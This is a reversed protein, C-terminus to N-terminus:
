KIAEGNAEVPWYINQYLNSNEATGDPSCLQMEQYSFPSLYHAQYFTYGDYLINNTKQIQYPRVYKSLTKASMTANSEGDAIILSVGKDNVFSPNQYIQDWFNVGEIQYNKVQDLSAWRILDDNRLGEGAFESRRERRISYLTADVPHGASFAAWDYSPRNVDAEKSMDTAAITTSIPATIGARARLATWYGTATADLSGTRLYSAEIYNLMAEEVRIIIQGDVDSFTQGLQMAPDYNYFKRQRYGTVDRSAQDTAFLTAANFLIKTLPTAGAPLKDNALDISKQDIGLVDSEGFMFLQLREDRDTKVLDVTTDGHYGSGSAYIPLGNKMLFSEVLGRTWGTAAGGRLKNSTLHALSPTLNSNFQRWLLVEPYKSLDPSAFMDYYANWGNYQGIASPNMVHNNQTKLPVADCVKKAADIAQDLFFNVENDQNITFNKNWEKNKGPWNADGPVRGTGRHYKEFTAEYLAMRSKMALAANKNIRVKSAVNVQLKDIAKDMDSLIQRAVLNRPQRKSAEVLDNDINLEKLVIPFDGYDQLKSYYLMARIFYAEGMYQNIQEPTGTVKGAAIKAESENIFKNVNRIANMGIGGSTPVKWQDQLYMGSNGGRSAQNDTGDDFTAVGAFWGSNNPFISTYYNITFTGLQDATTYYSDPSIQDLPPRDLFDSCSTVTMGLCLIPLGGRLINSIINKM